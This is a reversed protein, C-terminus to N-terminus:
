LEYPAGTPVGHTYYSNLGCKRVIAPGGDRHFKGDFCWYETGHPLICAPGHVRHLKGEANSYQIVGGYGVSKTLTLLEFLEDSDM